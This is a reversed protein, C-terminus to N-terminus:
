KWRRGAWEVIAGAVVGGTLLTAIMMGTAMSQGYEIMLDFTGVIAEMPGGYRLNMSRLIMQYISFGVVIWFVFTVTTRLGYGMAAGYGRGALRGMVFWGCLAGVAACIVNFVGWVTREPVGVKYVEAALYALAAFVIAAVLKAATPM